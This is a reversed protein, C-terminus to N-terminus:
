ALLPDGRAPPRPAWLHHSADHQILEGVYRTLVERDHVKHSRRPLYFGHRKARDIITSLSATQRYHTQLRRQVYSYNYARLPIQPNQIARQDIALEKVINQEIHPDLRHTPTRRTYQISFTTPNAQYRGLLKFFQTKGLGLMARIYPGEIEQKLYRQLMDKVQEDTFRKHLQGM